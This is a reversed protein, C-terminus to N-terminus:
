KVLGSLINILEDIYEVSNSSNNFEIKMLNTLNNMWILTYDDELLSEENSPLFFRFQKQWQNVPHPISLKSKGSNILKMTYYKKITIELSQLLLSEKIKDSLSYDNKRKENTNRSTILQQLEEILFNIVLVCVQKCDCFNLIFIMFAERDHVEFHEFSSFDFVKTILKVIPNVYINILQNNEKSLVNMYNIITRIIQYVSEKQYLRKPVKDNSLGGVIKLMIGYCFHDIQYKNLIFEISETSICEELKKLKKRPCHDDISKFDDCFSIPNSIQSAEVDVEPLRSKTTVFPTKQLVIQSDYVVETDEIDNIGSDFATINKQVKNQVGSSALQSFQGPVMKLFNELVRHISSSSINNSTRIITKLWTFMQFMFAESNFDSESDSEILEFQPENFLEPEHIVNHDFSKKTKLSNYEYNLDDFVPSRNLLKRQRILKTENNDTIVTSHDLLNLCIKQVFDQITETENM